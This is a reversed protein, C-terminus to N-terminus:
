EVIVPHLSQGVDNTQPTANTSSLGYNCGSFSSGCDTNDYYQNNESADRPIGKDEDNELRAYIAYWQNTGDSDYYYNRASSSEAPIKSMYITGNQDAMEQGWTCTQADGAGCGEMNGANAPPFNGKDNYYIELADALAELDGKRRTDRAREQSASFNGAVLTTLIGLIVMVILLEMLTFGKQLHKNM